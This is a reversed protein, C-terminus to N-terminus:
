AFKTMRTNSAIDHLTRRQPDFLAWWFGIGALALSVSALCFRLVARPWAVRSGDDMTLRLKWARMGLTQGGRSWSIAFYGASVAIVLAQMLMKYIWRHPDLAGGTVAVGVVGALFWLGLLPLLDYLLALLRLGLSVPPASTDANM